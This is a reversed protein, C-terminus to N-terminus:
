WSDSSNPTLVLFHPGKEINTFIHHYSNTFMIIIYLLLLFFVFLLLLLPLFMYFGYYRSSATNFWRFGWEMAQFEGSWTGRMHWALGFQKSCYLQLWWVNGTAHIGIMRGDGNWTINLGNEAQFIPCCSSKNEKPSKIPQFINFIILCDSVDGHLNTCHNDHLLTNCSKTFNWKSQNFKTSVNILCYWVGHRSPPIGTRRKAANRHGVRCRTNRHSGHSRACRWPGASHPCPDCTVISSHVPFWIYMYYIYIYM